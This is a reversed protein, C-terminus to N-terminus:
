VEENCLICPVRIRLCSRMGNNPMLQGNCLHLYEDQLM